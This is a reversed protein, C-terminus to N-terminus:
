GVIERGTLRFDQDYTFIRPIRHEEILAFSTCDTFSVDHDQYRLFREWAAERIESAVELMLLSPHARLSEGVRRALHFGERRRTLTILESFVYDSTVLQVSALLARM